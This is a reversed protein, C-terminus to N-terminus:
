MDRKCAEEEFAYEASMIGSDASLAVPTTSDVATGVTFTTTTPTSLVYYQVNYSIGGWEGGITVGALGVATGPDIAPGGVTSSVRVTTSNVVTQVYYTGATLTGIGTGTVTFRMNATVGTTDRLTVNKTGSNVEEILTTIENSTFLVPDGVTLNHSASTTFEDTTDDTSIVTGGFQSRIWATAENELFTSNNRLIEATNIIGIDNMYSLTGTVEPTEGVGKDIIDIIISMMKRVYAEAEPNNDIVDAVEKKMYRFAQLTARKQDALVVSAQAQYYSTGARVSRYNSNMMLDYRLADIIYGVDRACTTSNYNLNPYNETIYTIVKNQISLKNSSLLTNQNVLNATVWSTGPLNTIEVAISLGTGDTFSTLVTGNYTAALTFTTTL